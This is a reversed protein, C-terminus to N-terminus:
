GNTVDEAALTDFIALWNALRQQQMAQITADDPVTEGDQFVLADSFTGYKTVFSFNISQM